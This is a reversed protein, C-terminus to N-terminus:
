KKEATENVKRCHEQSSYFIDNEKDYYYGEEEWVKVDDCSKDKPDIGYSKKLKELTFKPAWVMSQKEFSNAIETAKQEIEIVLTNNDIPISIKVAKTNDYDIVDGYRKAIKQNEPSLSNFDIIIYVRGKKIDKKNASSSLTEINKDYFIQSAELLPAEVLDKLQERKIIIVNRTHEIPQIDELSSIGRKEKNKRIKERIEKLFEKDEETLERLQDPLFLREGFEDTKGHLSPYDVKKIAKKEDTKQALKKKEEKDHKMMEAPSSWSERSM